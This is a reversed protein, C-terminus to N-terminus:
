QDELFSDTQGAIRRVQRVDDEIQTTLAEASDFKQQARLHRWFSLRMPRGYLDQDCDLLFAEVQSEGSEFTPTNGISIAASFRAGQVEASGAYVGEAPTLQEIGGLNATPFGLGMGRAQGKEVIGFLAYPRGLCLHAQHVQGQRILDRVLSSSVLVTEDPEVQLKVPDVVFMEFGSRPALKRLLEPTGRRKKGFGFSWGEVVHAPRFKGVIIQEVFTEPELSLLGPESRAVVVADAGAQELCRTKESLPMLMAPARDPSVVALPHPDFTLVVVAGGSRSALLGAQAIIQQHGRHVGDFNGITLACGRLTEPLNDLGRFVQM